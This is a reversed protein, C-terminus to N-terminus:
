LCLAGSFSDGRESGNARTGTANGGLFNRCLRGGMWGTVGSTRGGMWDTVGSTCGGMWDTVGSARGDMKGTGTADGGLVNGCFDGEM